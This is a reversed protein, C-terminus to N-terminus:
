EVYRTVRENRNEERQKILEVPIFRWTENGSDPDIIKDQYVSGDQNEEGRKKSEKKTTM